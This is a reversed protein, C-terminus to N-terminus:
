GSLVCLEPANAAALAVDEALFPALADPALPVALMAGGPLAQIARARAAVLELADELSFVGAVCAATYEGLSHGLVAAPRIGWSEWLRALAYGVVFAVPQAAETRDLRAAAGSVPGGRGLMRRLDLGGPERAPEDSGEAPEDDVAFLTERLDWGLRPLLLDACRDVAARFVTETRYLGRGMGPYQEGVGPFLFVAPPEEAEARGTALRDPAAGRLLAAADEGERVVVARRCAFARRGERLTFAVDALPLEPHEALHTALRQTASELAQPTRASLLLLQWPGAPDAPRPQPAEELVVHANTGGIGFSSVGARRPADDRTWPLPQAPVFFPTRELGIQPNPSQFHLTPPIERHRLALVARILGAVGAAVDLHGVGPKLSGLACSGPPLPGFADALAAVEISDGLATGTGHAEVYGITCPDVAAAAHAARIVAAQGEMAPATFGVKRDGDNNVASGLIVAHITDGDALADELRRLAVIGCGSGPVTGQAQADFARCCGDPSLFSQEQFLYGSTQPVVASVGGALAMDCEGDRLSRCALHVAVLSTSCATQVTVAPGRLGLKYATRTALYDKDNSFVAQHTRVPDTATLAPLVNRFFYTNFGAGAFVGVRAPGRGPERGADEMAEWACELFIRQQPDLVEADRPSVGFFEADFRDIDELAGRAPVYAPHSLLEDGVGAARL